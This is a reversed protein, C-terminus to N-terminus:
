DPHYETKLLRHKLFFKIFSALPRNGLITRKACVFSLRIVFYDPLKGLIQGFARLYQAAGPGAHTRVMLPCDRNGDFACTVNRKKRKYYPCLIEM